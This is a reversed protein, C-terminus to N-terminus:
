PSSEITLGNMFMLPLYREKKCYGLESNMHMNMNMNMNMMVMMMMMMMMMKEAFGRWKGQLTILDTASYLGPKEPNMSFRQFGQASDNVLWRRFIQPVDKETFGPVLVQDPLVVQRGHSLM